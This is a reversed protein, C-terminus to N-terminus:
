VHGRMALVVSSSRSESLGDYIVRHCQLNILDGADLNDLSSGGIQVRGVVNAMDARDLVLLIM